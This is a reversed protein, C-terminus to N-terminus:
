HWRPDEKDTDEYGDHYGDRYGAAYGADYDAQWRRKIRQWLTLPHAHPPRTM